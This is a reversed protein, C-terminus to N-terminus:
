CLNRSSVVKSHDKQKNYNKFSVRTVSHRPFPYVQNHFLRKCNYICTYQKQYVLLIDLSRKQLPTLNCLSGNETFMYHVFQNGSLDAETNHIGNFWRLTLNYFHMSNHCNIFTHEISDPNSCRTCLDDNAM